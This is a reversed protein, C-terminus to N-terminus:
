RVDTRNSCSDREEQGVRRHWQPSSFRWQARDTKGEFGITERVCTCKPAGSRHHTPGTGFSLQSTEWSRWRDGAGPAGRCRDRLTRHPWRQLSLPAFEPRGLDEFRTPAPPNAACPTRKVLGGPNNAFSAPAKAVSRCDGPPKYWWRHSPWRTHEVRHCLFRGVPERAPMGPVAAECSRSQFRAPMRHDETQVAIEPAIADFRLAASVPAEGAFVTCMSADAIFM